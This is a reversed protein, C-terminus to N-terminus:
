KPRFFPNPLEPGRTFGFISGVGAKAPSRIVSVPPPMPDPEPQPEPAAAEMREVPYAAPTAHLIEDSTFIPVEDRGAIRELAAAIRHLQLVFAETENSPRLIVYRKRSAAAWLVAIMVLVTAAGIIFADRHQLVIAELARWYQHM